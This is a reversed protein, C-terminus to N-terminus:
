HHLSDDITKSYHYHLKLTGIIKSLSKRHYLKHFLLYYFLEIVYQLNEM